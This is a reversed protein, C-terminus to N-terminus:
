KDSVSQKHSPVETEYERFLREIFDKNSLAREIIWSLWDVMDLINKPSSCKLYMSKPNGSRQGLTLYFQNESLKQLIGFIALEQPEPRDEGEGRLKMGRRTKLNGQRNEEKM